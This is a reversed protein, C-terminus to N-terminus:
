YFLFQEERFQAAGKEVLRCTYDPRIGLVIEPLVLKDDPLHYASCVIRPKDRQITRAAGALVHREYGEVDMKIFGVGNIKREAVVDDLAAIQLKRSNIKNKSYDASFSAGLDGASDFHLEAEGKMEGLGTNLPIVAAELGNNKINQALVDFTEKVPEFAYVKMAGNRAAYISFVGVNAGADIVTKGEIAGRADRVGYEDHIIIGNSMVISSAAHEFEFDKGDFHLRYKKIRIKGARGLGYVKAILCAWIRENIREHERFNKSYYSVLKRALLGTMEVSALDLSLSRAARAFTEGIPFDRRQTVLEKGEKEYVFSVQYKGEM